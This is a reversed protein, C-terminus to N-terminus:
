EVSLFALFTKGINGASSDHAGLDDRTLNLVFCYSCPRTGSNSGSPHRLFYNM